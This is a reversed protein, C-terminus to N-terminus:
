WSWLNHLTHGHICQHGKCGRDKYTHANIFEMVKPNMIEDGVIGLRLSIGESSFPKNVNPAKLVFHYIIYFLTSLMNGEHLIVYILIGM